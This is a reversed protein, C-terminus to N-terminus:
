LQCTRPSSFPTPCSSAVELCFETSVGVVYVGERGIRPNQANEIHTSLQVSRLEKMIAVTLISEM